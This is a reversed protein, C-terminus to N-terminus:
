AIKCPIEVCIIDNSNDDKLEWRVTVALPPYSSKIDLNNSYTYSEGNKLPCALGTKCGDDKPKPLSFPLPVGGIVGHVVAKVTKSDTKSAFKITIGKSSGRGLICPDVNDPCDTVEVATVQGSSSGCDSFKTGSVQVALVFLAVCAFLRNM